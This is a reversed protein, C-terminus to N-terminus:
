LLHHEFPEVSGEGIKVNLKLVYDFLAVLDDHPVRNGPGVQTFEVAEGGVPLDTAYLSIKMMRNALPRIASIQPTTSM